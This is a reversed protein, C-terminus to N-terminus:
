NELSYHELVKIFNVGNEFSQPRQHKIHLITPKIETNNYKLIYCAVVTASRQIGQACHVLVIKNQQLHEHIIELTRTDKLLKLLKNSDNPDDNFKLYTINNTLNKYHMNVEPCCNIILSINPLDNEFVFGADGLYLNNIIKNIHHLM